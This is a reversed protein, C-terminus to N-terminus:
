KKGRKELVSNANWTRGECSLRSCENNSNNSKRKIANKHLFFTTDDIVDTILQPSRREILSVISIDKMNAYYIDFCLM